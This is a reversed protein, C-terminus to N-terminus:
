NLHLWHGSPVYWGSVEESEQMFQGSPENSRPSVLHMIVINSLNNYYDVLAFQTGLIDLPNTELCFQNLKRCQNDEQYSIVCIEAGFSIQILDNYHRRLVFLMGPNHPPLIDVTAQSLCIGPNDEQIKKM